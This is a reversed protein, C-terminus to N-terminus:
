DRRFWGSLQPRTVQLIFLSFSGLIASGGLLVIGIPVYIWIWTTTSVNQSWKSRTGKWKLVPTWRSVAYEESNPYCGLTSVEPMQVFSEGDKLFAQLADGLSQCTEKYWSSYTILVSCTCGLLICILTLLLFFNSAYIKCHAQYPESLCYKVSISQFDASTNFPSLPSHTWPIETVSEEGPYTYYIYGVGPTEFEELASNDDYSTRCTSYWGSQTDVSCNIDFSWLSNLLDPKYLSISEGPYAPPRTHNWVKASTWGQADADPGAKVVLLVNRYTQRSILEESYALACDKAELREWDRSASRLGPLIADFQSQLGTTENFANQGLFAVGPYAFDHGTTFAESVAFRSYDTSSFCAFIISHFLWQIPVTLLILIMWGFTRLHSIQRVNRISHVGIDFSHGKSHAQRLDEVTPSSILRIFFDFSVSIGIALLALVAQFARNINVARNCHGSFLQTTGFTGGHTCFIIFSMMSLCIMGSLIHFCIASRHWGRPSRGRLISIPSPKNQEM